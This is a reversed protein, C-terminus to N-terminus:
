AQPAPGPNKELIGVNSGDAVYGSTETALGGVNGGCPDPFVGITAHADKGRRATQRTGLRTSERQGLRQGREVREVEAEEIRWDGKGGLRFGRIKGAALWRQVTIMKM